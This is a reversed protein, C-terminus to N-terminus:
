MFPTATTLAFAKRYGLVGDRLYACGDLVSGVLEGWEFICTLPTGRWNGGTGNNSRM